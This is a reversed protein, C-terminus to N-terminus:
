CVTLFMNVPFNSTRLQFVLCRKVLFSVVQLYLNALLLSLGICSKVTEVASICFMSPIIVTLNSIYLESFYIASWRSSHLLSIVKSFKVHETCIKQPQVHRQLFLLSPVDKSNTLKAKLLKKYYCTKCFLIWANLTDSLHTVMLHKVGAVLFLNRM